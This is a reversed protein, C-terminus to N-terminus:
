RQYSPDPRLVRLAGAAVALAGAILETFLGPGTMAEANAYLPGIGGTDNTAPLDVLVTWLLVVAGLAILAYAAPRSGGVGAGWAMFLTVAGVLVLAGGHREFGSLFCRDAIEPNTDTIVECSGSAVDVSAVTLFETVVMLAAAIAGAATVGIALGGSRRM